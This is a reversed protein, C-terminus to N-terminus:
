QFAEPDHASQEHDLYQGNGNALVDITRRLEDVDFPKSIMMDVGLEQYARINDILVDLDRVRRFTRRWDGLERRNKMITRGPVSGELVLLPESLRRSAVRLDHVAEADGTKGTPRLGAGQGVRDSQRGPLRLDQPQERAAHGVGLNGRPQDYRGPRHIVVDGGSELLEADAGPAFGGGSM